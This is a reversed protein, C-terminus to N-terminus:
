PTTETRFVKVGCILLRALFNFRPAKPEWSSDPPTCPLLSPFLPSVLAHGHSGNARTAAKNGSDALLNTM